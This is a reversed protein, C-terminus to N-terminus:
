SKAFAWINSVSNFSSPGLLLRESSLRANKRFNALFSVGLLGFVQGIDTLNQCDFYNAMEIQGLSIEKGAL